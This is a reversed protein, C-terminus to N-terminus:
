VRRNELWKNIESPTKVKFVERLLEEPNTAAKLKKLVCPLKMRRFFVQDKLYMSSIFATLKNNSMQGFFLISYNYYNLYMEKLASNPVYTGRVVTKFQMLHSLPVRIDKNKDFYM